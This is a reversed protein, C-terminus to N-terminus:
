PSLDRNARFYASSEPRWLLVVIAIMLLSETVALIQSLLTPGFRLMERLIFLVIVVCLTLRAWNRGSRCKLTLWVLATIGISGAILVIVRLDNTQSAVYAASAHPHSHIVTAKLQGRDFLGTTFGVLAFVILVYLLVVASQV